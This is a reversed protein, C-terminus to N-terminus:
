FTIDRKGLITPNRDKLFMCSLGAKGEKEGINGTATYQVKKQSQDLREEFRERKKLIKEWSKRELIFWAAIFPSSIIAFCMLFITVQPLLPHITTVAIFLILPLLIHCHLPHHHICIHRSCFTVLVRFELLSSVLFWCSSVRHLRFNLLAFVLHYYRFAWVTQSM